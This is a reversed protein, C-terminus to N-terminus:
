RQINLSNCRKECLLARSEYWHQDLALVALRAAEFWKSRAMGYHGARELVAAERALELHHPVGSGWGSDGLLRALGANEPREDSDM